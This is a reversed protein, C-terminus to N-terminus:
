PLSTPLLHLTLLSVMEFVFLAVHTAEFPYAIFLEEMILFVAWLSMSIIFAINITRWVYLRKWFCVTAIFFLIASVGQVLIDLSFLVNLFYHPLPYISLVKGWESYNGSRFVSPSIIDTVILFDSLNTLCAIFFWTGWFLLIISKLGFLGYGQNSDELLHM